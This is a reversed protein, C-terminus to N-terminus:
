LDIFCPGPARGKRSRHGEREHPVFKDSAYQRRCMREMRERVQRESNVGNEEYGPYGSARLLRILHEVVAPRMTAGELHLSLDTSGGVIHVNMLSALTEESHPVSGM